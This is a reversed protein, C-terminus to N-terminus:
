PLLGDSSVSWKIGQANLRDTAHLSWASSTAHCLHKQRRKVFLGYNFLKKLNSIVKHVSLM